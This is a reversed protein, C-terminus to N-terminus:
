KESIIEITRQINKIVVQKTEENEGKVRDRIRKLHGLTFEITKLNPMDLEAFVERRAKKREDKIDRTIIQKPINLKESLEALNIKTNRGRNEELLSEKFNDINSVYLNLRERKTLHRRKTNEDKIISIEQEETLDSTIIRVPIHTMKLSRAIYYRNNGCLVTGDPKAIVPVLIGHTQINERLDNFYEMKETKFYLSNEKNASLKKIPYRTYDKFEIPTM